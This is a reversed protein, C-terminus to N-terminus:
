APRSRSSVASDAAAKRAEAAGIRGARIGAVTAPAVLFGGAAARGRDLGAVGLREGFIVIGILVALLPATGRALPYVVSLDGRRYAASLLIFYAAEVVGSAVGLAIGEVPLAPSARAGGSRSGSRCSASRRRSCGSRRPGSRTAPRRSGSTGPSTCCPPSPSSRSSGPNWGRVNGASIAGRSASRASRWGASAMVAAVVIGVPDFIGAMPQGLHKYISLDLVWEPLKLAAGSPISSCRRSSLVATVGAALSSRM